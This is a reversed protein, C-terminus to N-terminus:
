AAYADMLQRLNQAAPEDSEPPVNVVPLSPVSANVAAQIWWRGLIMMVPARLKGSKPKLTFRCRLNGERDFGDVVGKAGAHMGSPIVLEADDRLDLDLQSDESYNGSADYSVGRFIYESETLGQLVPPTFYEGSPWPPAVDLQMEEALLAFVDDCRAFIRLTSKSDHVTQQLGIIVSGLAGKGAKSAPTTVVRDANMGCLSTGVAIALDAQAECSLLDDFLDNRLGGSMPVVPNFPAHWAGHIENIREQPLGAKQPLGDHNQNVWRHLHGAENLAVLVRHAL